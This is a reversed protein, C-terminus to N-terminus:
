SERCTAPSDTAFVSRRTRSPDATGGECRYSVHFEIGNPGTPHRVGGCQCQLLAFACKDPRSSAKTCTAGSSASTDSQRPNRSLAIGSSSSRSNRSCARDGRGLGSGCPGSNRFKWQFVADRGRSEARANRRFLVTQPHKETSARLGGGFVRIKGVDGVPANWHEEFSCSSARRSGEPVVEVRNCEFDRM